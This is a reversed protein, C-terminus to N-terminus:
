AFFTANANDLKELCQLAPMSGILYQVDFNDTPSSSPANM